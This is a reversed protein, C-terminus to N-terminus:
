CIHLITVFIFGTGARLQRGAFTCDNRENAITAFITIITRETIVQERPVSLSPPHALPLYHFLFNIHLAAFLSNLAYTTIVYGACVGNFRMRFNWAFTRLFSIFASGANDRIGPLCKSFFFVCVNPNTRKPRFTIKPMEFSCHSSALACPTNRFINTRLWQLYYYLLALRYWVRQGTENSHPENWTNM